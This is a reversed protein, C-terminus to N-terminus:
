DLHIFLDIAENVSGIPTTRAASRDQVGVVGDAAGGRYLRRWIIGAFRSEPVEFRMEFYGASFVICACLRRSLARSYDSTDGGAEILAWIRGLLINANSNSRACKM